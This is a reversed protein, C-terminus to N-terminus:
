YSQGDPCATEASARKRTELLTMRPIKAKLSLYDKLIGFGPLSFGVLLLVALIPLIRPLRFQKVTATGEPVLL